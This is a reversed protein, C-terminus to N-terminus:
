YTTKKNVLALLSLIGEVLLLIGALVFVWNFGQIFFLIAVLAFLVPQIILELDKCRSSVLLYGQYIAYILLAGALVYLVVNAILWGLVILLVGGVAKIIAPTWNNNVADIVAWVILGAGIITMAVNIIVGKFAILLIGLVITLIAVILNSTKM